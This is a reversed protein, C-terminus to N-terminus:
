MQTSLSFITTGIRKTKTKTRKMETLSPLCFRVSLNFFPEILRYNKLNGKRDITNPLEDLIDLTHNQKDMSMRRHESHSINWVTCNDIRKQNSRYVLNHVVFDDSFDICEQSAIDIM